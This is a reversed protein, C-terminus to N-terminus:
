EFYLSNKLLKGLGAYEKASTPVFDSGAYEAHMKRTVFKGEESLLGQAIRARMDPHIRPGVSIAHNPLPPHRYLVQISEAGYKVLNELPVVTGACKNEMLGKLANEWGRTEVIVPQRSPNEFQSLLTLTGLNPPAHACVLRGALDEVEKVGSNKKAVVVFVFDEPLKVLPVYQLRDVRWGTFAPGDFIIDYRGAVMEKSYALWNDACEFVVPSGTIKTLFDVMPRYEETQRACSERPPASLVFTPREDGHVGGVVLSLASLCTLLVTATVHRM